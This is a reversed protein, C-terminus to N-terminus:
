RTTDLAVVEAEVYLKLIANLGITCGVTAGDKLETGHDGQQYKEADTFETVTQGVAWEALANAQEFWEKEIPSAGRMNYADGLEHKSKIRTEAVVVQKRTTNVAVDFLEANASVTYPVQFVDFKSAVIKKNADLLLGGVAIDDQLAAHTNNMAVGVRLGSVDPVTTEIKSEWAKTLAAMFGDVKITCGVTAGDELAKGGYFDVLGAPDTIEAVTKGITWNEYADAQEYWEKEIPSAIIMGYEELLEWKSAIDGVTEDIFKKSNLSTVNAEASFAKVQMVDLNLDLVKGAADFVVSVVDVDTQIYAGYAAIDTKSAYEAVAGLGFYITQEAPTSVSTTPTSSSPDGSSSPKEGCGVLLVAPLALLLFKNLKVM